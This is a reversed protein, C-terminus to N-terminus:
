YQINDELYLLIANLFGFYTRLFQKLCSRTNCFEKMESSIGPVNNGIDSRNWLLFFLVKRRFGTGLNRGGRGAAQIVYHLMNLPRVMGVIDINNFDLGLLMVSTSLYLNIENKRQRYSEATVPGINSHNMVFPCKVPNAAYEPLRECLSDYVDAIDDENRFIWISRKVDEGNRMQKVYADLHIQNLLDILGPQYEGHANESGFSGHVNAPRQIRVFKFQSQIPNSKLVM